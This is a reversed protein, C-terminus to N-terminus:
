ALLEPIPKAGGSVKFPRGNPAFHEEDLDIGAAAAITANFSGVSCADAEVSFGRKDSAGYVQGTRIGAGALLGSFAGPHHDRGVNENIKPTRGFETQVAVLTESLLGKSHLDRLLNGLAVDLHNAKEELREWLTQHMDWGGYNVEVFRVGSEVLRRALLCGQGLSNNGYAERIKEPEEKIDFVKLSDSGMLRRAEVYMENYAEVPASEYRERFKADLKNVLNLRRNFHKTTLYDPLQTNQLGSAPNAIPVPSLNPPLFGAAPHSNDSGVFVNGPLDAADNGKIHTLWAGLGPHQISNIKKFSTRMLYRGGEHDGTETSLSRVVALGGALYALRPLYEGFTVGPIRTQIAKTPGGEEVGPKPDFTEFHTMGGNMFLLIVHKATGLNRPTVARAQDGFVRVADSTAAGAFTVGLLGKAVTAMFQRRDANRLMSLQMKM